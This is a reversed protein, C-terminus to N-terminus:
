ARFRRVVYAWAMAIGIAVGIVIGVAITLM